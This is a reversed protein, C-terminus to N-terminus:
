DLNLIRAWTKAGCQGDVTLWRSPIDFHSLNQLMTCAAKSKAGYQGDINGIQFEGVEPHMDGYGHVIRQFLMCDEKGEPDAEIAAANAADLNTKPGQVTNRAIPPVPTPPVPPPGPDVPPPPPLPAGGWLPHEWWNSIGVINIDYKPDLTAAKLTVPSFNNKGRGYPIEFPQWHWLETTGGYSRGQVNWNCAVSTQRYAILRFKQLLCDELAYRSQAASPVVDVALANIDNTPAQGQHWSTWVAAGGVTNSQQGPTRYATGIGLMIGKDYGWLMAAFVRRRFESHMRQVTLQGLMQDLTLPNKTGAQGDSGVGYGFPFTPAAM